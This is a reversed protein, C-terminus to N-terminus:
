LSLLRDASFGGGGIIVLTAITPLYAIDLEYSPKRGGSLFKKGLDQEQEVYNDRELDKAM